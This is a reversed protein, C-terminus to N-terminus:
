ADHKKNLSHHAFDGNVSSEINEAEQVDEHHEENRCIVKCPAWSMHGTIRFNLMQNTRKMTVKKSGSVQELVYKTTQTYKETVHFFQTSL